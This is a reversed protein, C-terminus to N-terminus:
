NVEVTVPPVMGMICTIKFTGKKQPTFEFVNLGQHLTVSGDFLGRGVVTTGCGTMGNNTFNWTVPVGQKLQVNNPTYEFGSAEMTLIQNTKIITSEVQKTKSMSSKLNSLSTFGLVNFQSNINIIAFFIVLIGATYSFVKSFTHNAYLKVSSFSILALMPLTGLAFSLLMLSSTKFDGTSLALTQVLITFGCPVFFTLAGVLFPFYKGSFNNEKTLFKPAQIKIKQAWSIDLMQIGLLLMIVSVIITFVATSEASLKFVSGVTGLMGGLVAFSALRGTNFMIFPVAKNSTKNNETWTKSLSLLIGGTLAACSSLGAAIGFFFFAPLSSTSSIQFKSLIGIKENLIFIASIGAVIFLAKRFEAFKNQQHPTSSFTYGLDKFESNLKEITPIDKTNEALIEVQKTSLHAKVQSIGEHKGLNREILNECAKCHMGKVYLTTNEM